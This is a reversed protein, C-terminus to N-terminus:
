PVFGVLFKYILHTIQAIAAQDRYAM